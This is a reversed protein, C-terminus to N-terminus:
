PHAGAGADAASCTKSFGHRPTPDCKDGALAGATTTRTGGHPYISCIGEVDDATLVWEGPRYHVNMVAGANASHALGLFHGAEHTIVSALDIGGIPVPPAAVLNFDHSNLEMDADFIEGDTADYTITTLGITNSTDSYPWGDDRFVIVHQNPASTNYQVQACAVPGEDHPEIAPTGGNCPAASWHAFAQAAVQTAQDLTIHRLPSADEQLSYGACLNKWYLQYVDSGSPAFCGSTAPDYGAPPSSTVGRCFARAGSSALCAALLTASASRSARPSM